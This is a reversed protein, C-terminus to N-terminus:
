QIQTEENVHLAPIQRDLSRSITMGMNYSYSSHKSVVAFVLIRTMFTEKTNQIELHVSAM